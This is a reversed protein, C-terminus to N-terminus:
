PSSYSLIKKGEPIGDNAFLAIQEATLPEDYVLVHSIEGRFNYGLEGNDDM